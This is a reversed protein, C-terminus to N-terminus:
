AIRANQGPVGGTQALFEMIKKEIETKDSNYKGNLYQSLASRSYNMRMAAEAKTMKLETLRDLMVERLTKEVTYTGTAEM